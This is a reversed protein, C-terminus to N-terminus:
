EEGPSVSVSVVPVIVLSTTRCPFRSSRFSGRLYRPDSLLVSLHGDLSAGRPNPDSSSLFLSLDQGSAPSSFTDPSGPLVERGRVTVVRYSFSPDPADCPCCPFPDVEM